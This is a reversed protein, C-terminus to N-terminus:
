LTPDPTDIVNRLPLTVVALTVLLVNDIVKRLPLTTLRDM